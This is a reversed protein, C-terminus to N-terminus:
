AVNYYTCWLYSFLVIDGMLIYVIFYRNYGCELLGLLVKERIDINYNIFVCNYIVLIGIILFLLVGCLLWM